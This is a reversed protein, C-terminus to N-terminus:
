RRSCPTGFEMKPPKTDGDSEEARSPSADPFKTAYCSRAGNRRSNACACGTVVNGASRGSAVPRSPVPPASPMGSCTSPSPTRIPSSSRARSSSARLAADDTFPKWLLVEEARAAVPTCGLREFFAAPMFGEAGARGRYATDTVGTRGDARANAEIADILFRGIGRSAFPPLVCLCPIVALSEGIPGWPSPDIPIGHAFGALGCGVVAVKICSGQARLSKFMCRRERACDDIGQSAGVHSCTSVFAEVQPRMDRVTFEGM